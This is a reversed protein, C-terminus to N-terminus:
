AAQRERATVPIMSAGRPASGLGLPASATVASRCRRSVQCDVCPVPAEPIPELLSRAMWAPRFSEDFGRALLALTMPPRDVMSWALVDRQGHRRLWALSREIAPLDSVSEADTNRLSVVGSRGTRVTTVQEDHLIRTHPEPPDPDGTSLRELWREQNRFFARLAADAPQRLPLVTRLAEVAADLRAATLEM